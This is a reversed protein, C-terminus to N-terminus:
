TNIIKNKIAKITYNLLEIPTYNGPFIPPISGQVKEWHPLIDISGMSGSVDVLGLSNELAASEKLRELLSDWQAEIIKKNTQFSAKAYVCAYTRLRSFNLWMGTWLTPSNEM